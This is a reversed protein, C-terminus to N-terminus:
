DPQIIRGEVGPYLLETRIKDHKVPEHRFFLKRPADSLVATRCNTDQVGLVQMKESLGPSEGQIPFLVVELSQKEIIACKSFKGADIATVQGQDNRLILIFQQLSMESKVFTEKM